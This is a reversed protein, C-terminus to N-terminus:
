SGKPWQHSEVSTADRGSTTTSPSSAPAFTLGCQAAPLPTTAAMRTAFKAKVM